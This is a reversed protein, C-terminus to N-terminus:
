GGRFECIGEWLPPYLEKFWCKAFYTRFTISVFPKVLMLIKERKSVWEKSEAIQIPYRNSQHIETSAHSIVPIKANIMKCKGLGGVLFRFGWSDFKKTEFRESLSHLSIGFVYTYRVYYM